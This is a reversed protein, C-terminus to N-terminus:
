SEKSRARFPCQWDPETERGSYQRAESHHGFDALNANISGQLATDRRRIKGQLGAFQGRSKLTEFQDHANFVLTPWGFRRSDRSAEPHLGVIFFANGAISFSFDADAPNASVRPDWFHFQRDLRHLRDLQSWLAAEFGREGGEVGARFTAIFTTYTDGLGSREAVFAYLDRMLGQSVAEDDLREYAGFRYANRNLAARAGLCPYRDDLVFARFAAHSVAAFESPPASELLRVLEGQHFACYNSHQKAADGDYPNLWACELLGLDVEAKSDSMFPNSRRLHGSSANVSVREPGAGCSTDYVWCPAIMSAPPM